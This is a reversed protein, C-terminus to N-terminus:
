MFDDDDLVDDYAETDAAHSVVKAAALKPKASVKKKGNAKDREEQQKTNGLTALGSGVKRVQVALLPESLDKALQEVFAPYLPNAQHRALLTMVDKALAAFQDKTKPEQKLVNEMAAKKDDVDMGGLLDAAVNLDADLEAQRAALKAERAREQETRTDMLDDNGGERALREKEALKDKLKKQRVPPPAVKTAAAKPKEDESADWDDQEDEVDEDAFKGKAPARYPARAAAPAPTSAGSGAPVDVDWDDDSM